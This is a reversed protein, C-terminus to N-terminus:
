WGSVDAFKRIHFFTSTREESVVGSEDAADTFSAAFGADGGGGGGGKKKKAGNGGKRALASLRAQQTVVADLHAMEGATLFDHIEFVHPDRHVRRM